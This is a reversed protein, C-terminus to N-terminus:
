ELKRLVLKALLAALENQRSVGTKAFVKKLTSRATEETIGLKEAAQAPALGVGILSTLRAESLTLGLVDRIISPDPPADVESDVALVIMRATALLSAVPQHATKVPLLYVALPRRSELRDILIPRLMGPIAEPDAALAQAVIDEEDPTRIRLRGDAVSLEPGLLSEAASNSFTVQGASNLAFVGISLRNLAEALGIKTLEVELLRVSLRLAKEAHRCLQVVVELEEDTYPNKDIARQISISAEVRPGAALPAAAFYRLGHRALLQYYPHTQMEEPSVLDRDTVADRGIYFGRERGRIARFDQGNFERHYEAILTDLSPSVIAGFRGDDLGYVLVSGVDGLVDAISQLADPWYTPDAAARYIADLAASFPKDISRM